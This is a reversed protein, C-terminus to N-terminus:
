DRLGKIGGTIGDKLMITPNTTVARIIGMKHYKEIQKIGSTDPFIHNNGIILDAANRLDKVRYDCEVGQNYPADILFCYCGARELSSMFSLLSFGQGSTRNLLLAVDLDRESGTSGKARSGFIYAADVAPEQLCLASIKDSIEPIGAKNM